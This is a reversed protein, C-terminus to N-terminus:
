HGKEQQMVKYLIEKVANSYGIVKSKETIWTYLELDIENEKFSVSIKKQQKGM